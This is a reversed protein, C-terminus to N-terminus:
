NTIIFVSERYSFFANTFYILILLSMVASAIWFKPWFLFIAIALAFVLIMRFGAPYVVYPHSPIVEIVKEGPRQGNFTYEEKM